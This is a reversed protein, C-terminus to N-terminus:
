LGAPRDVGSVSALWTAFGKSKVFPWIADALQKELAPRWTEELSSGSLMSRLSQDGARDLASVLTHRVVDELKEWRAISQLFAALQGALEGPDVQDLSGALQQTPWDLLVDLVHGRWDGMKGAFEEDAIREAALKFAPALADDVSENVREEISSGVEGAVSAAIDRAKDALWFVLEGGPFLSAVQASFVFLTQRLVERLLVHAAEHDLLAAVLDEDLVYPQSLIDRVAMVAQRPPNAEIKLDKLEGLWIGIQRELFEENGPDAAMERIGATALRALDGADFIEDVRRELMDETWARVLTDVAERSRRVNSLLLDDQNRTTM